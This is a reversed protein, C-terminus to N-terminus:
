CNILDLLGFCSVKDYCMLTHFNPTGREHLTRILRACYVADMPSLLCRPQICHEILSQIFTAGKGAGAGVEPPFSVRYTDHTTNKHMYLEGHSFWFAKEKDLRGNKETTYRYVIEQASKEKRLESITSNYRERQQRYTTASARTSKDSSREAQRAKNYLTEGSAQLTKEIESYKEKPYHLDYGSM